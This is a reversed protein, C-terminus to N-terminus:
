EHRLASMPDIRAARRAPILAAAATVALVFCATAALTAADYAKVGFLFAAVLREAALSVTLGIAAGAAVLMASERVIMGLVTGRAAGLAMRIGIERTRQAVTYSAIGYLGIVAMLLALVGFYSGVTALLRERLLTEDILRTQTTIQRVVFGPDALSAEHRLAAGLSAVDRRARLVVSMATVPHPWTYPYYVIRPPSNRLNEFKIDNVVGIVTVWRPPSDEFDSFTRGLPNTDGFFQRALTESVVAVPPAAPEFDRPEFDRGQLTFIGTTRFFGTSALFFVCGSNEIDPASGPIRLMGNGYAGNFPSGSSLSASEVGPIASVRRLLDQWALALRESQDGGRLQLNALIINHRNFGTNATSLNILTRVFSTAGVVLILSVCVQFAVMVKGTRSRESGTRGAYCRLTALPNVASSRWAPVLGFLLAAVIGVMGTFALVHGSATSPLQLSAGPPTLLSVLVPSMWRALILGLGAAAGAILLAECLLQRLLRWRSAGLSIRVAMEGQRISRRAEFLTAVTTCALLLVLAVLGSVILLPKGGGVRFPSIGGGAPILKIKLRLIRDVLSQPTGPPAHGVMEVMQQHLIAQLPDSAQTLTAGPMLRGILRVSHVSRPTRPESALPTWLDTKNGVEVGFFGPQAVGAIQFITKGIRIARSLIGPDLNFRNQWLGYSIVAAPPQDSARDDLDSITRGIAPEVDMAAFYSGSVAERRLPEGPAGDINVTIQRAETQAALQAFPAIRDKMEGFDSAAFLEGFDQLGPGDPQLVQFLREPEHVPLSRFLLADAISFVATNAGIGLGLTIIIAAAFGPTRRLTRWGCRFDRITGTIWAVQREDRCEELIHAPRGILRKAATRAQSAPMGAKLNRQIERNFHYQLEEELERDLRRSYFLTRLRLRLINLARM